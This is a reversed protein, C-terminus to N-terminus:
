PEANTYCAGEFASSWNQAAVEAPLSFPTIERGNVSLKQALMDITCDTYNDPDLSDYASLNFASVIFTGNREIISLTNEWKNRGHGRNESHLLLTGGEDFELWPITSWYDGTIAAYPLYVLPTQDYPGRFIYLAAYEGERLLVAKYSGATNWSPGVASIIDQIPTNTPHPSNTGAMLITPMLIFLFSMLKM